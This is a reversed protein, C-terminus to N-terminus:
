QIKTVLTVTFQKGTVGILDRVPVSVSQYIGKAELVKRFVNIGDRSQSSGGLTITNQDQEARYSIQDVVIGAPKGDLARVIFGMASTTTAVLPQLQSILAQVKFAETRETTRSEASAGRAPDTIPRNHALFIYSPVLLILAFLALISLAIAGVFIFRTRYFIWVRKQEQIPLVNSM